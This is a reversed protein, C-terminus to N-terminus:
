RELPKFNVAHIAKTPCGQECKRCMRCKDGDIHALNNEITIADWECVKQCKTCGICAAECAKRAVAGKDKNSCAVYVFRNKPGKHRIEILHRPCAKACAGCATCKEPDVSVIGTEPDISIAGFQCSDKCDGYGFCGYPCDSEGIYLANAIKCNKAGDYTNTTPRKACDAACRIVAVQPSGSTAEIGLIGAVQSMVADGGVPCRKNELNGASVCAEAFQRCGAYGCGGCNANPLTAEIDGIRSDEQVHFQKATLFLALAAFAGVGGLLLITYLITYM